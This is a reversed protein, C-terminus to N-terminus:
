KHEHALGKNELMPFASWDDCPDDFVISVIKITNGKRVTTVIATRDGGERGIDVGTIV